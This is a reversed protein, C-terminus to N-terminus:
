GPSPSGMYSYTDFEIKNQQKTTKCSNFLVECDNLRYQM